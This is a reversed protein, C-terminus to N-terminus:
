PPKTSVTYRPTSFRRKGALHQRADALKDYQEAVLHDGQLKEHRSFM